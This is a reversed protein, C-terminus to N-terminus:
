AAPDEVTATSGWRKTYDAASQADARNLYSESHALIRGNTAKIRFFWQRNTDQLVEYTVKGARVLEVSAKADARNVYTESHCLVQSNSAVARWYYPQAGGARRIQFKM